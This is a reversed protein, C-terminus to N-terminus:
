YYLKEIVRESMVYDLGTLMKPSYFMRLIVDDVDTLEINEGYESYLASDERIDSEGTAGIAKCLQRIIASNRVKQDIDTRLCIVGEYIESQEDKLYYAADYGYMSSNACIYSSSSYLMVLGFCILFIVLFLLNYDFYSIAKEKRKKPARKKEAM